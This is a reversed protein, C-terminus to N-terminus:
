IQSLVIYVKKETERLVRCMAPCQSGLFRANRLETGWKEVLDSPMAHQSASRVGRKAKTSSHLIAFTGRTLISSVVMANVRRGRKRIEM